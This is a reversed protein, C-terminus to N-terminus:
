SSDRDVYYVVDYNSALGNVIQDYIEKERMERAEVFSHFVCTGVILGMSYFAYNSGLVQILMFFEIILSNVGSVTYRLKEPEVASRGIHLMYLSTLLYLAVQCIFLFYRGFHITYSNELSVTFVFPYFINIALCLIGFDFLIWVLQLIMRRGRNRSDLHAVVYRMWTLMTLYLAIFYLYTSASFLTFVVPIHRYEETIGWVVDVIYYFM